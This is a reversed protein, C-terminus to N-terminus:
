RVIFPASTVMSCDRARRGDSVQVVEPVAVGGVQRVLARRDLDDLAPSPCRLGVVATVQPLM